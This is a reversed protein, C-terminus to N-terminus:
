LAADDEVGTFDSRFDAPGGAVASLLFSLLAFVWFVSAAIRFILGPDRRSIVLNTCYELVIPTPM